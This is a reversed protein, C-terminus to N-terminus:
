QARYLNNQEIYELVPDPLLYKVSRGESLIKRIMRGSIELKTPKFLAIKTGYATELTDDNYVRSEIGVKKLYLHVSTSDLETRKLVVFSALGFLEKYDKWTDIEFFAESGTIFYYQNQSRDLSRLTDVTYSPGKRKGELDSVEINASSTIARKLMEFRHYFPTVKEGQKHPPIYAPILLIKELDFAEKVELASRLHGFHVPDFTGGLIGIPKM